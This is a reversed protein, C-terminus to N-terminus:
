VQKPLSGPLSVPREDMERLIPSFFMSVVVASYVASVIAFVPRVGLWEVMMGGVLQGLPIAIFALTMLTGFVRARYRVPVREQRVSMLIPNLPGAFIGVVLAIAVAVPYPPALSFLFGLPSCLLFCTMFTKRRPLRPSIASFIITGALAGIGHAGLLIGVRDASGYEDRVLAPIQVTALPAELFNTLCLFGALWFLLRHERIFRFGFTTNAWFSAREEVERAPESVNPVVALVLLASLGFVVANIWLVNSAGVAAVLFGAVVPGIFGSLRRSGQFFANVRDLEIRGIAALEPVMAEKATAGPGDLMAGIIVLMVLMSFTLDGSLYLLPIGCVSIASLTDSVVSSVRFGARDVLQGGFFIALVRPLVTFFGILGVRAASGTLEFVFWPIAVIAIAEAIFSLTNAALLGFIPVRSRTM